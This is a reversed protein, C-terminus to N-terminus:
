AISIVAGPLSSPAGARRKVKNPMTFRLLTEASLVGARCINWEHFAASADGSLSNCRCKPKVGFGDHRYGFLLYGL